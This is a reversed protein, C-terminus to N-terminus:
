IKVHKLTRHLWLTQSKSSSKIIFVAAIAGAIIFILLMAALVGCKRDFTKRKAEEELPDLNDVSLQFIYNLLNILLQVIIYHFSSGALNIYIIIYVFSDFQQHCCHTNSCNHM